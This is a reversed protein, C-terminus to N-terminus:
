NQFASTNLSPSIFYPISVGELWGRIDDFTSANTIDYLLLAANAGLSGLSKLPHTALISRNGVEIICPPRPLSVHTGTGTPLISIVPACWAGSGSRARRIGCNCGYRSATSTCRTATLWRRCPLLCPRVKKTVFFAGSTSTTNKPDFKNQTYRQLLSTKGVGALFSPLNNPFSFLLLGSNGMIVIKSDIGQEYRSRSYPDM